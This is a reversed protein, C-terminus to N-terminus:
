LIEKRAYLMGSNSLRIADGQCEARWVWAAVHQDNAETFPISASLNRDSKVYFKELIFSAFDDPTPYDFFFTETFTVLKGLHMKFTNSLEIMGLSDLGMERWPTSSIPNSNVLFQTKLIDLAWDIFMARRQESSDIQLLDLLIHNVDKSDYEKEIRINDFIAHRPLIKRDFPCLTIIPPM